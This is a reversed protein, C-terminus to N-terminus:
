GGLEAYRGTRMSAPDICALLEEFTPDGAQDAEATVAADVSDWLTVVLWDGSEARATTRRRLGAQRYAFEEQFAKDVAVFRSEDVGHRLKFQLIDIM